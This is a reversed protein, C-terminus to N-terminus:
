IGHEVPYTSRGDSGINVIEGNEIYVEEWGATTLAETVDAYQADKPAIKSAWEPDTLVALIDELKHVYFETTADFDAM